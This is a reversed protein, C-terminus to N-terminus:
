EFEFLIWTQSDEDWTYDNGDTPYPIPSNWIQGDWVWSPYPQPPIPTTFMYTKEARIGNNEAWIFLEYDTDPNFKLRHNVLFMQDTRRYKINEPPWNKSDIIEDNHKLEFGFKLNKFEVTPEEDTFGIRLDAYNSSIDQEVVDWINDKLNDYARIESM